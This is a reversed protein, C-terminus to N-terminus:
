RAVESGIRFIMSVRLGRPQLNDLRMRGGHLEVIKRCVTLGLGTGEGTSKKTTFFPEFVRGMNEESIGPGTNEVELLLAQGGPFWRCSDLDEFSSKVLDKCVSTRITLVGKGDSRMAHMANTIINILVQEIKVPDLRVCPLDRGAEMRVLVKNKDLDHKTLLLAREVITNVDNEQLDLRGPASFDLLGKVVSDARNVALLIDAIIPAAEEDAAFRSKLYEVAMLITALPNKVEHAVGAALRGVSEMKAAQIMQLYEARKRDTIDRIIGISGTISGQPDKLVTISIDIDIVEGSKKRMRTELHHQMGKQRVNFSRIRKWEEESYLSSVPRLYLDDHGMGFLDEAFKNWSVIREQGDCVTIAVASNDFITRYREEALKLKLEAQKRETIDRIIGISGTIGGRADKLVTISIDIDIVEGSKKRM